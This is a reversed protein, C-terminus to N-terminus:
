VLIAICRWLVPRSDCPSPNAVSWFHTFGGSDLWAGGAPYAGWNFLERRKATAEPPFLANGWEGDVKGFSMRIVSKLRQYLGLPNIFAYLLYAKLTHQVPLVVELDDPPNCPINTISKIVPGSFVCPQVLGFFSYLNRFWINLFRRKFVTKHCLEHFGNVM